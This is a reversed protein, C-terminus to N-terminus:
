ARSALLPVLRRRSRETHHEEIMERVTDRCSGCGTGAGCARGVADVTLAGDEIAARVVRASVGHCLCVYM